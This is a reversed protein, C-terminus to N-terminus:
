VRITTFINLLKIRYINCEISFLNHHNDSISIKPFMYDKIKKHDEKLAELKVNEESYDIDLNKLHIIISSILFIMHLNMEDYYNAYNIIVNLNNEYEPFDHAIKILKQVTNEKNKLLHNDNQKKKRQDTLNKKSSFIYFPFSM